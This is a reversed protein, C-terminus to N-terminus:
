SLYRRNCGACQYHEDPCLELDEREIGFQRIVEQLSEKSLCRDFYMRFKKTTSFYVVRGRPFYDYPRAKFLRETQSGPRLSEHFDNHGGFQLADDYPEAKELEVADILIEGRVVFYIGVLPGRGSVQEAERPSDTESADHDSKMSAEMVTNLWM